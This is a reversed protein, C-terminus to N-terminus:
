EPRLDQMVIAFIEKESDHVTEYCKPFSHFQDAEPLGKDQQFRIFTPLVKNYFYTEREFLIDAMFEKRRHENTPAFKCLLNLKAEVSSKGDNSTRKGSIVARLLESGFNDGVNTGAGIDTTYDIFGEKKTIRALIPALYAPLETMNSDVFAFQFQNTDSAIM